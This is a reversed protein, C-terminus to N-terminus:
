GSITPCCASCASEDGCLGAILEDGLKEVRIVGKLGEKHNQTVETVAYAM